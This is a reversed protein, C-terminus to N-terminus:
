SSDPISITQFIDKAIRHDNCDDDEFVEAILKTNSPFHTLQQQTIGFIYHPAMLYMFAGNGGWKLNTLCRYMHSPIASAGFSHGIMGLRSTDTYAAFKKAGEKIGRFMRRYTAGQYPFEVITYTMLLVCYGKGAIHRLLKEFIARDNEGTGPFFYILPLKTSVTQPRFLYIKDHHWIRGPLSDIVISTTSDSGYGSAIPPIADSCKASLHCPLLLLFLITIIQFRIM